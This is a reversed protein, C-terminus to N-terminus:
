KRLVQPDKLIKNMKQESNQEDGEICQTREDNEQRTQTEVVSEDTKKKFNFDFLTRKKKNQEKINRLM